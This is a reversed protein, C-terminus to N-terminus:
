YGFDQGDMTKILNLSVIVWGHIIRSEHYCLGGTVKIM